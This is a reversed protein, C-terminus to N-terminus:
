TLQIHASSLYTQEQRTGLPDSMVETKDESNRWHHEGQSAEGTPPYGVWSALGLTLLRHWSFGLSKPFVFCFHPHIPHSRLCFARMALM